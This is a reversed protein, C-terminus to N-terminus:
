RKKTSSKAISKKPEKTSRKNAVRVSSRSNDQNSSQKSSHEVHLQSEYSQQIERNEMTGSFVTPM